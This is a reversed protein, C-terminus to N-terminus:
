GDAAPSLIDLVVGCGALLLLLLPFLAMLFNYALLGALNFVWDNNLKAWFGGVVELLTGLRSPPSHATARHASPMSVPLTRTMADLPGSTRGQPPEPAM